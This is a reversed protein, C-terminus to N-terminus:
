RYRRGEATWEVHWDWEDLDIIIDAVHTGRPVEDPDLDTKIENWAADKLEGFGRDDPWEFEPTDIGDPNYGWATRERGVDRRVCEYRGVRPGSHIFRTRERDGVLERIAGLLSM